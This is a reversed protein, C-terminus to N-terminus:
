QKDRGAGAEGAGAGVGSKGETESNVGRPYFGTVRVAKRGTGTLKGDM